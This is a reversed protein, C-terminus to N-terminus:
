CYYRFMLKMKCTHLPRSWFGLVNSRVEGGEVIVLGRGRAVVGMVVCALVVRNGRAAMAWSRCSLPCWSRSVDSRNIEESRVKGMVWSLFRDIVWSLFKGDSRKIDWSLFICDSRFKGDSRRIFGSLPNGDSRNIDWSRLIGDSRKIDESRLKFLSLNVSALRDVAWPNIPIPFFHRSLLILRLYELFTLRQLRKLKVCVM